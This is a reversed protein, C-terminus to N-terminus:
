FKVRPELKKLMSPGIGKVKDLDNMSSYPRGAIIKAAMESEARESLIRSDFIKQAFHTALESKFILTEMSLESANSAATAAREYKIKMTTLILDQEDKAYKVALQAEEEARM